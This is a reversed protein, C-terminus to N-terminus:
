TQKSRIERRLPESPPPGWNQVQEYRKAYRYFTGEFNGFAIVFGAWGDIFGRKFFYHKKEPVGVCWPRVCEGNLGAQRLAKGRRAVFLSGGQPHDGSPASPSSGSQTRCRKQSTKGGLVEYGEHVPELTYRMSGKGSSSRNASTRIGDRAASLRGMFYNRRLVLYLDYPPQGGLLGLIEDRVEKTCREDADLSFIWDCRCAEVARNRLDGFGQFPVQAVRAGLSTAIDATADTSNSDVVVIRM